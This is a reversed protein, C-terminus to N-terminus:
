FKVMKRSARFEGAEISYHYVGSPLKGADFNATHEGASLEGDILVQVVKGFQDFVRLTVQKTEPLIFRITTKTDYPNPYNQELFYGAEPLALRDFLVYPERINGLFYDSIYKEPFNPCIFEQGSHTDYVKFVMDSGIDTINGHVSFVARYDNMFEVWELKGYGRCSDNVFAGIYLRETDLQGRAVSLQDEFGIKAVITMSHEYRTHDVEFDDLGLRSSYVLDNYSVGDRLRLKYMKGPEMFQLPGYWTDWGKHYESFSGQGKLLDKNRLNVSSLAQGVSQTSQPQFGIWNWGSFVDISSFNTIPTGPVRLTDPGDSLHIMYGQKNDLEVLPGTWQNGFIIPTAIQTFQATNGDKRKVTIDNGVSTSGLSSLLNSVTMDANDVNLSVWNWGQNLPIVQYVGDTHFIEPDGIRGYVADDAFYLTEAARYEVGNTARWLSFTIEENAIINSYVTLFAIYKNFREVYELNAVGRIEGNYVAAILDRENRSLNTDTQDLSFVCVVNMSYDYDSPDVDWNPPVALAEYNIYL